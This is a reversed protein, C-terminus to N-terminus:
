FIRSIVRNIFLKTILINFKVILKFKLGLLFEININFYNTFFIGNYFGFSCNHLSKYLLLDSSDFSSNDLKAGLLNDFILNVSNMKESVSFKFEHNNVFGGNFLNSRIYVLPENIYKFQSSVQFCRLWYDWDEAYILDENFFGVKNYLMRSIMVSSASGAICNGKLLDIGLNDSKYENSNAKLNKTNDAFIKYNCYVFDFNSMYNVEVDLKSPAWIDDADLFSILLGNSNLLGTNRAGSLGKNAQTIIRLSFDYDDLNVFNELKEDSGDDVIIVEFNKFTQVKLSDLTDFIYNIKNYYPIIVSVMM